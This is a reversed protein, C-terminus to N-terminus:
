KEGAGANHISYNVLTGSVGVFFHTRDQTQYKVENHEDSENATSALYKCHPPAIPDFRTRQSQSGSDISRTRYPIRNQDQSNEHKM